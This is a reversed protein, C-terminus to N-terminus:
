PDSPAPSGPPLVCAFGRGLTDRHPTTGVPCREDGAVFAEVVRDDEGTCRVERADSNALLEVCSGARILGDPEPEGPGEFLAAGAIVVAVGVLAMVMLFRWPVRAPALEERYNYRPSRVTTIVDDGTGTPRAPRAASGTDAAEPGGGDLSRDYLARRGPDSLVRYAENVAAMEDA